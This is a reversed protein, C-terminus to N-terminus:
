PPAGSSKAQKGGSPTLKEQLSSELDKIRENQLKVIDNQTKITENAQDHSIKAIKIIDTYMSCDLRFKVMIEKYEKLGYAMIKWTEEWLTLQRDKGELEKENRLIQSRLETILKKQVAIKETIDYLGTPPRPPPHSPKPPKEEILSELGEMLSKSDALTVEHAFQVTKDM